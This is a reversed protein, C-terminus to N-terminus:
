NNGFRKDVNLDARIFPILKFDVLNGDYVKNTFFKHLFQTYLDVVDRNCYIRGKALITYSEEKFAVLDGAILGDNMKKLSYISQIMEVCIEEKKNLNRNEMEYIYQDKIEKLKLRSSYVTGLFGVFAGLAVGLFTMIISNNYWEM